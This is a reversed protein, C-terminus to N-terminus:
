IRIEFLVKPDNPRNYDLTVQIGEIEANGKSIEFGTRLTKGVGKSGGLRNVVRVNEHKEVLEECIKKTEDTSNDNVIIIEGNIEQKSFLSLIKKTLGGVNKEENHAPIVVSIM